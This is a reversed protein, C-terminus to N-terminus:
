PLMNLLVAFLMGKLKAKNIVSFCYRM